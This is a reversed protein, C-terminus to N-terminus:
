VIQHILGKIMSLATIQTKYSSSGQIKDKLSLQVKCICLLIARVRGVISHNLIVANNQHIIQWFYKFIFNNIRLM